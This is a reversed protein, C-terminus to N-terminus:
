FPPPLFIWDCIHDDYEDYDKEQLLSLCVFKKMQSKEVEEATVAVHATTTTALPLETEECIQKLMPPPSDNPCFGSRLLPLPVKSTM